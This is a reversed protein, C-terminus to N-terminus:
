SVGGGELFDTGQCNSLGLRDEAMKVELMAAEPSPAVLFSLSTTNPAVPRVPFSTTFCASSFPCWTVATTLVGSFIFM